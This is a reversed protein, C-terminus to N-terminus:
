SVNYNGCMTEGLEAGKRRIERAEKFNAQGGRAELVQAYNDRTAAADNRPGLGLGGFAKNDRVHLARQLFSAAEDLNGAKLHCEGLANLTIAAQVSDPGFGAIKLPLAQNHLSIARAYDGREFAQGAQNNLNVATTNAALMAAAQPQSSGAVNTTNTHTPQSSM